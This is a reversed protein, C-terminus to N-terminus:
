ATTFILHAYGWVLTGFVATSVICALFMKEVRQVVDRYCWQPDPYGQINMVENKRSLSLLAGAQGDWAPVVKYSWIIPGNTNSDKKIAFHGHPDCPMKRWWFQEYLIEAILAVCVMVAGSAPVEWNLVASIIFIVWGILLSIWVPLGLKFYARVPNTTPYTIEDDSM